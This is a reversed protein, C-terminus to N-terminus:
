TPCGIRYDWATGDNPAYLTVFILRGNSYKVNQTKGGSVLGGTTFIENGKSDRIVMGDTITYMQYDLSFTRSDAGLDYVKSFTGKGGSSQITQCSGLTQVTTGAAGTVGSGIVQYTGTRSTLGVSGKIQNGNVVNSQFSMVDTSPQYLGTVSYSAGTNDVALGELQTDGVPPKSTIQALAATNVAQLTSQVNSVANVLLAKFNDVKPLASGGSGLYSNIKDKLSQLPDSGKGLNVFSDALIAGSAADLM